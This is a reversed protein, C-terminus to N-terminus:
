CDSPQVISKFAVSATQSILVGSDISLLTILDTTEMIADNDGNERSSHIKLCKHKFDYRAESSHTNRYSPAEKRGRWPLSNVAM